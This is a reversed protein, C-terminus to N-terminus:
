KQGTWSRTLSSAGPDQESQTLGYLVYTLLSLCLVLCVGLPHESDQETVSLSRVLLTPTPTPSRGDSHVTGGPQSDGHTRVWVCPVHPLSGWLLGQLRPLFLRSKGIGPLSVSDVPDSRHRNWSIGDERM